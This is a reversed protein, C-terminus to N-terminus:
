RRVFTLNEEQGHSQPETETLAFGRGELFALITAKDAAGRYLQRPTVAVELKIRKIDNLREGASQIVAFDGGQADIKLFEVEAIGAEAMFTDLRITPVMIAPEEILLEGDIWARRAEEDLELLSSAATFRNIHFRAMGDRDTVAMAHVRYNDPGGALRECLAPVPEFAHVVLLPDDLVAQRM